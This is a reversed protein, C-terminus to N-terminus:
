GLERSSLISGKNVVRNQTDIVEIYSEQTSKANSLLSTNPENGVASIIFRPSSTMMVMKGGVNM